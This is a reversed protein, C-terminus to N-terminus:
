VGPPPSDSPCRAPEDGAPRTPRARRSAIQQSRQALAIISRRIRELECIAGRRPRVVWDCGAPLQHRLTRFSERLLRKWRNRQVANGVKRPISIGWRSYDLDNLAGNLVLCEDSVVVGAEFVRRFEGPTKLRLRSPFRQDSM